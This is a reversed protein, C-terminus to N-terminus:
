AAEPLLAAECILVAEIGHEALYAVPDAYPDALPDISESYTELNSM